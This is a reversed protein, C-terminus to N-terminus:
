LQRGMMDYVKGDRLIYIQGNQLIKIATAGQQPTEINDLYTVVGDKETLKIIMQKPSLDDPIESGNFYARLGLITGSSTLKALRNDAM